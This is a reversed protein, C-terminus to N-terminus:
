KKPEPPKEKLSELYGIVDAFDQLSLGTNLGEPMLSKESLQVEDINAKPVVHKKGEADILTLEQPTDGRVIGSLVKGDKTVVITQKYGDLIQKSPYLVSEILFARNYKAGVSALDPGVDGTGENKVKHCKTCALGKVDLFLKKGREVDGTNKLAFAEYAAPDLKKPKSEFLRGKQAAPVAVSFAWDGGHQGIKALLVNKGEKLKGKFRYADFKWGHDTLDEFIKQGNLWVTLSDDSGGLFEVEREVPSEVDTLAYVTVDSHVPMQKLFDVKGHEGEVKAKTWTIAKGQVDKFEGETPVKDVPFPEKVPNPFPGLLQWATIPQHTAYIRQLEGVVEPTLLTSEMKAEILPLAEGRLAAVAKGSAERLAANKGGLGELYADLARVDPVEALAAIAEFRTDPSAYAKLLGPIASKAKLKGLATVATRRLDPNKDTLLPLLANVAPDGGIHALAEVAALRVKPDTHGVRQIIAPLAAEAKLTGLVTLASVLIEPGVDKAVLESVAITIPKGGIKEAATLADPLLEANAAPEKLVGAILDAASPAKLEALAQVIAKRVAPEKEKAFLDALPKALSADHTVQVAQVAATRVKVQSDALADRLVAQATETGAWEGTKPPLPSKVPQTGWWKGDWPKPEHCLEALAGLAAARAEAPGSTERVAAALADVVGPQYTERLAFLTGERIAPQDSALGRAIEPWAKADARGIRNLATFVAYRTFVDKEALADRLAPVTGADGIRGLATAARFRVSLDDDKLLKTLEGAAEKARRTGLERAAQRRVSADSDKLAAIIAPRGAKGGDLADLAWIAHWRATAPAKTDALLDTLPKVAEAGREALRRQAILRVSEAPHKLGDILEATTAEFKKGSGAPIFWAPKPAALSKGTYTVKLLRGAETKSKWGGYNWDTVIFGLGDPTTAIGVPRFEKTGRTLLDHRKVVKYSGGERAVELRLLQSRGWECLFLNGHYEAPLADENYATAGTPSGGGYDLMMWLTYPRRPKYDHPYGYWGGDVMHTVRTDWGNGDDTNDYTFIEDEATVAVDLHNRTGTSYVELDTGDPRIRFVGGGHIEIAKGDKGVAGRIGKDGTSFYLYGDMALRCNSPIHDNFGGTWPEPHTQEILDRRDKGVGDDDTFVSFKPTHHVYLKGDIYQMGFVAYLNEAFVTVKGDPHFCLIRDTPQNSANGMDMPDEGVFIRGDPACCVVSPHKIKPHEALVEVKWDPLVKPLAPDPAKAEDASLAHVLPFLGVFAVVMLAAVVRSRFM